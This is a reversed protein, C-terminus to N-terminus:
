KLSIIFKRILEYVHYYDDWELTDLKDNIHHYPQKGDKTYIYFGKVGSNLFFYHDGNPSNKRKGLKGLKLSDNVETLINYFEPYDSGGLAMLGNQGSAVCDFNILFKCENLDIPSNEVFYKSGILGVEEGSFFIPVISYNIPNEKFYRVLNLVMSVGSANDNAGPFYISDGMSGLHDYHACLIIFSDVDSKGKQIGYINKSKLGNFDTDIEYSIKEVKKPFSDKLIEFIPVEDEAYASGYSLKDVLLIIAEAKLYTAIRIRTSSSLNKKPITKDKRIHDPLVNDIIVISGRIEDEKGGFDNINKEPVYLGHGIFVIDDENNAEGSSSHAHPLFDVGLKLKQNDIKLMPKNEILNVKLKFEQSYGDEIPELGIQKLEKELFEAVKLHGDFQYGRGMFDKSSLKEIDKKAQDVVNGSLLYTLGLSLYLIVFRTIFKFKM